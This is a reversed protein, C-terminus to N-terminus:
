EIVKKYVFDLVEEQSLTETQVILDYISKDLMDINYAQKYRLIESEERNKTSQLFAQLEGDEREIIRSVRIELPAGLWIDYSEINNEALIWGAIRGDIVAKGNNKVFKLMEAELFNDLKTDTEFHQSMELVSVGKEKAMKRLPGGVAYYPYGLKEALSKATSSKGSGPLGSFTIVQHKSNM